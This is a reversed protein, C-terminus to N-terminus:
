KGPQHHDEEIVLKLCRPVPEGLASKRIYVTGVAADVGSSEERYRVTNKTTKEYSFKPELKRM